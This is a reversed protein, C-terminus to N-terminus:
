QDAPAERQLREITVTDAVFRSSPVLVRKGDATDLEVATPHVAVVTGRVADIQITDGERFLKRLIRTSAVETAVERGGLAVLLMLAGALGFFIAAVGLNIVTTDFGLQRVALLVALTIITLRVASLTQRQISPGLRGLAPALAAQAFSSLVNAAIVIIAASLLRPVYDVIDKPLQDLSSPSVIGLAVILGIVVCVSFALSALASAARRVPDPRTPRDIASTLLRSAVMGAAFGGVIAAAVAIWETTTM